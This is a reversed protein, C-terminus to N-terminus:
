ELCKFSTVGVADFAFSFRCIVPTHSTFRWGKGGGGVGKIERHPQNTLNTGIAKNALRHVQPVDGWRQLQLRIAEFGDVGLHAM